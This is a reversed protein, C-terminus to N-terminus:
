GNSMSGSHIGDSDVLQPATHDVVLVGTSVCLMM